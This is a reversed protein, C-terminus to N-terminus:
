SLLASVDVLGLSCIDGSLLLYCPAGAYPGSFPFTVDKRSQLSLPISLLCFDTRSYATHKAGNGCDEELRAKPNHRQGSCIWEPQGEHDRM